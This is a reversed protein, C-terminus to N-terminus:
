LLYKELALSVGNDENTETIEDAVEKVRHTANGMAIGLGAMKIMDIDNNEDGIAITQDMPINFHECLLQLGYSKKIGTRNIFLYNDWLYDRIELRDNQLGHIEDKIDEVVDNDGAVVIQYYKGINQIKNFNNVYRIGGFHSKIRGLLDHNNFIDYKLLEKNKACKYYKYGDSIEIFADRKSATELVSTVEDFEMDLEYILSNDKSNFLITGDMCVVPVELNLKKIIPLTKYINRGTCLTVIGGNKNVKRITELNQQSVQGKNNVLTGDIDLVALKYM